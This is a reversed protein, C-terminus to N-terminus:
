LPSLETVDYLAAAKEVYHKVKSSCDSLKYAELLKGAMLATEETFGYLPYLYAFGSWAMIERGIVKGGCYMVFEGQARTLLLPLPQGNEVEKWIRDWLDNANEVYSPLMPNGESLSHLTYLM